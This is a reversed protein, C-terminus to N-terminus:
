NNLNILDQISFHEIQFLQIKNRLDAENMEWWQIKLLKEIIDNDFRYKIVKAPVGAAIAFDPIDKTVISGAGIIAGNGVHVGGLIIVRTGIWVDNGIIVRRVQDYNNYSTWSYGTGNRVTTFIPSTSINNMSHTALGINCNSAISCFKGIDACVVQSFPGIYTYSDVTSNVIKSLYNIRTKKSVESSHDILCFFSVRKKFFNNFFGLIYKLM